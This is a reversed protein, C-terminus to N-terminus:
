PQFTRLHGNSPDIQITVFNVQKSNMALKDGDNINHLTLFWQGSAPLTTAGSPLFRFACCNYNIGVNRPLSVQPDGKSPYWTKQLSPTAGADLVSSLSAGSDIIISAPVMQMKGLPTAVGSEDIQFTQMARFKWTSPTGTSEGPAQSDAFQYFRVEVKHNSSLALQRALGLQESVTQAGQTLQSGRLVTGAAPLALVAILAMIGLVALVEILTFASTARPKM